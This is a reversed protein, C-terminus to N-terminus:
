AFAKALEAPLLDSAELKRCTMKKEEETLEPPPPDDDVPAEEKEEEKSEEEKAEEEKEGDKKQSALRAKKAAEAKKQREEALRKREAEMAKKKKEAEAKKKKETLLLEQVLTKYEANPEGMLVEARTEFKSFRKLASARDTAVLNGKLEMVVYNRKLTPAIATLLRSVSTDDMYPIGFGMEPKDNSARWTYGKQRWLGSKSAWELIKRDSLETFSPNKALFGDVWDFVGTEPLGVPFVVQNKEDTPAKKLEVDAASADQIMRCKFPMDALPEPGTNMQVTVNRYTITPFLSKGHLNEPLAQPESVRVGDRFLSVTNANPSASDGM